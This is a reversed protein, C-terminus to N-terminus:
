FLKHQALAYDLADGVHPVLATAAHPGRQYLGTQTLLSRWVGGIRNAGAIDTLLNDGVMYIAEIRQQQQEALKELVRQAYQFTAPHPKGYPVVHFRSPDHVLGCLGVLAHGFAGAGFRPHTHDTAYELDACSNYIPVPASSNRIVDSVIQIDRGWYLPDILCFVAGILPIDGSAFTVQLDPYSHPERMHYEETSIVHQCGYSELIKKLKEYRKGVVLVPTHAYLPSVERLPTHALIVQEPSLDVGLKASLDRAKDSELHGGGNTLLVFPINKDRLESLVRTAQSIVQGGNMLVGDVDFSM